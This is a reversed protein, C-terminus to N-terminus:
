AVTFQLEHTSFSYFFTLILISVRVTHMCARTTANIQQNRGRKGCFFQEHPVLSYGRGNAVLTEQTKLSCAYTHKQIQRIHPSNRQRGRECVAFRWRVCVGAIHAGSSLSFFLSYVSPSSFSESNKAYGTAREREAVCNKLECSTPHACNQARMFNVARM